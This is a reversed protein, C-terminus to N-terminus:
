KEKLSEEAIEVIEKLAQRAVIIPPSPLQLDKIQNYVRIAKQDAKKLRQKQKDTLQDKHKKLRERAITIMALELDLATPLPTTFDEVKLYKMEVEYRRLSNELKKKLSRMQNYESLLIEM